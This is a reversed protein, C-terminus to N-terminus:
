CLMNQLTNLPDVNLKKLNIIHDYMYVTGSLFLRVECICDVSYVRMRTHCYVYVTHDFLASRLVHQM